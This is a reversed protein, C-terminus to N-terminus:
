EEGGHRTSGQAVCGQEGVSQERVVGEGKDKPKLPLFQERVFASIKIRTETPMM